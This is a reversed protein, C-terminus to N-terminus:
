RGLDQHLDAELDERAADRRYTDAIGRLVAATRPWRDAVAESFRQYKSALSREKDGGADPNKTVVGRSNYLGIEFGKELDNSMATEIVNRVARVPWSGDPDPGSGSLMQGIMQDGIALRGVEALRSRASSVWAQLVDSDVNGDQMTGPVRRWSQLLAYGRHHREKEEESLEHREENEARFVFTISEVFFAPDGALLAHLAKPEHRHRVDLIPLWRWELRALEARDVNPTSGLAELLEAVHYTFSGIPADEKSDVAGADHLAQVAQPLCSAVAHKRLALLTVAANPRQTGLLQEVAECVDDDAIGYPTLLGWYSKRTEPETSAVLQWNESNAPLTLLVHARQKPSWSEGVSQLKTIVWQKGSDKTRKLAFRYAFDALKAETSALHASLLEDERAIMSKLGAATSGVSGADEAARAIAIVGDSGLMDAVNMLADARQREVEAFYDDWNEGLTPRGEPLDPHHSFLWAFRAAPDSPEFRGRVAEVKDVMGSPMAWSSEPFARHKAVLDRLATWLAAGDQPDLEAIDLTYIRELIRSHDEASVNPLAEIVSAWRTGSRGVDALLRSVVENIASDYEQHSPRSPDDPAWDRWLPRSAPFAIVHHEPLMSLLVSWAINPSRERLSDLVQLRRDLKASTQPLWPRFMGNLSTKPRNGLRGGPDIESLRALALVVRGLHGPSWALGELAWLLGTHPSSSFLGSDSDTFLKLLIPSEGQLGKDVADLFLDPKAEALPRLVMELSAWVRWDENAAALTDRVVRFVCGDVATAIAPDEPAGIAMIALTDAIAGRLLGSYKPREGLIGAMWREEDQLDFAPNPSTLVATAVEAFRNLDDKTLLRSLLKWADLRNVLYWASGSNRLLPDSGACANMSEGRAADYSVGSTVEVAEKDGEYEDNWAGLLVAHRLTRGAAPTSWSPVRLSPSLAISRRLATMGRHGMAAIDDARDRPVGTAVLAETAAGRNIRPVLRGSQTSPDGAGLPIIVRHGTRVAAPIEDGGDFLAILNLPTTSRSLRRWAYVDEVVIARSLARESDDEPMTSLAAAVVGTAESRSEAQVSLIGSGQKVWEQIESAVESRGALLFSAALAPETARSWEDFFTRLDRAGLAAKGLHESLWLAVGPALDLWQELSHADYARVERWNGEATREAAWKRKNRWTRATVFVFATAAPNLELPNATRSEYDKNAKAGVGKEVSLEWAAAGSPVFATGTDATTIGDLGSERIGDGAPFDCHRLDPTTAYVLRRVVLPLLLSADISQAWTQLDQATVFLASSMM